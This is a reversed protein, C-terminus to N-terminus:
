RALFPKIVADNRLKRGFKMQDYQMMQMSSERIHINRNFNVLYFGVLLTSWTNVLDYLLNLEYLGSYIQQGLSIKNERLIVFKKVWVSIRNIEWICCSYTTLNNFNVNRILRKWQDSQRDSWCSLLLLKYQYSWNLKRPCYWSIM